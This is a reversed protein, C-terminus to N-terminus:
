ADVGANVGKTDEWGLSKGETLENVSFDRALRIEFIQDKRGFLYSYFNDCENAPCTSWGLSLPGM